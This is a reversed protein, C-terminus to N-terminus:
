LDVGGYAFVTEFIVSDALVDSRGSASLHETYAGREDRIAIHAFEIYTETRFPMIYTRLEDFDGNPYIVSM